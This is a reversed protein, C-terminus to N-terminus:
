QLSHPQANVVITLSGAGNNIIRCAKDMTLSRTFLRNDYFNKISKKSFPKLKEQSCIEDFLLIWFQLPMMEKLEKSFTKKLYINRGTLVHETYYPTYEAMLIKLLMTYGRNSESFRILNKDFQDGYCEKLEPFVRRRMKGRCSWSPTTDKFYPINYEMAFSFMVDKKFSLFPRMINVGDIVNSTKLIQLDDTHNNKMINNFINEVVDDMHHGLLVGTNMGYREIIDKYGDFRKSKTIKEYQSRPMSDRTVAMKEITLNVGHIECYRKLFEAERKSEIRNGYDLHYAVITHQKPLSMLAHLVVMSDVGGSLSVFSVTSKELNILNELTSFLTRKTEKWTSNTEFNGNKFCREDLIDKFDNKLADM